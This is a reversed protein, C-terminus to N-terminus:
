FENDAHKVKQMNHGHQYVGNRTHNGPDFTALILLNFHTDTSTQIRQEQRKGITGTTQPM